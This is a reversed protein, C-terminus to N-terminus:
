TPYAFSVELVSQDTSNQQLLTRDPLKGLSAIHHKAATDYQSNSLPKDLSQPPFDELKRLLEDM